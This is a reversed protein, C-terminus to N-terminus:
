FWYLKGILFLFKDIGVVIKPEFVIFFFDKGSFNQFNSITQTESGIKYSKKVLVNHIQINDFIRIPQRSFVKMEIIPFPYWESFVTKVHYDARVGKVM